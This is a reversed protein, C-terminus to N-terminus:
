VYTAIAQLRRCREFRLEAKLGVDQSEPPAWFWEGGVLQPQEASAWQAPECFGYVANADGALEVLLNNADQMVGWNMHLFTGLQQCRANFGVKGALRRALLADGVRDPPEKVRMTLTVGFGFYQNLANMMDGAYETQHVAVFVDGCGPPPQGDPMILCMRKDYGFGGPRTVDPGGLGGSWIASQVALLLADIM